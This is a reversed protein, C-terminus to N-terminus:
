VVSKRDEPNAWSAIESCHVGNLTDGMGPTEGLASGIMYRSGDLEEFYLEAKNSASATPADSCAKLQRLLRKLQRIWQQPLDLRNAISLCQHSRKTITWHLCFNQSFLSVGQQRAKLIRIRIPKGADIQAKMAAWIIQQPPNLDFPVM